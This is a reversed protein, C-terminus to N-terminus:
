FIVNNLLWPNSNVLTDWSTQNNFTAVQMQSATEALYKGLLYKGKAEHIGKAAM